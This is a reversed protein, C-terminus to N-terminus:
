VNTIEARAFRFTTDYRLDLTASLWASDLREHRYARPIFKRHGKVTFDDLAFHRSKFDFAIQTRGKMLSDFWLKYNRVYGSVKFDSSDVVGDFNKVQLITDLIQITADVGKLTHPYNR